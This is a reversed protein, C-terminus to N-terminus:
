IFIRYFEVVDKLFLGAIFFGLVFYSSFEYKKKLRLYIGPVIGAVLIITFSILGTNIQYITYEPIFPSNLDSKTKLIVFITTLVVFGIFWFMLNNILKAKRNLKVPKYLDQDILENM